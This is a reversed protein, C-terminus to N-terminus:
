EVLGVDWSWALRMGPESVLKMGIISGTGSN